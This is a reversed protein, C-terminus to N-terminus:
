KARPLRILAVGVLVLVINAGIGQINGVFGSRVLAISFLIVLVWGVVRVISRM